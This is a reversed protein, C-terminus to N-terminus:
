FVPLTVMRRNVNKLRLQEARIHENLCAECQAIWALYDAVNQEQEAIRDNDTYPTEM